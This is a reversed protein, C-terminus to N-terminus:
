SLREEETRGWFLDLHSFPIIFVESPGPDAQGAQSGAELMTLLLIFFPLFRM